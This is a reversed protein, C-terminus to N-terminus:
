FTNNWPVYTYCHPMPVIVIYQHVHLTNFQWLRFTYCYHRFHTLLQASRVSMHHRSTMEADRSDWFYSPHVRWIDVDKSYQPQKRARVSHHKRMKTSECLYAAETSISSSGPLRWSSYGLQQPDGAMKHLGTRCETLLLLTMNPKVTIIMLWECYVLTM